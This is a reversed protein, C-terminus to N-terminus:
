SYVLLPKGTGPHQMRYFDLGFVQQLLAPQLVEDVSGHACLGGDAMLLIRDAFSAALNLDHLAMFVACGQQAKQQLAQMILQQHSFDLASTPEDLILLNPKDARMDWVQALVRALQVRQQEGGSLETYLQRRLHVADVLALAADVIEADVKVGTSHPSRGLQVVEESLFPFNLSSSQPLVALCTARESLAHAQLPEGQFQVRGGSPLLEGCALKLLTSKGAGNPGLLVSIQGAPISVSLDKVISRNGVRYDLEEISVVADHM